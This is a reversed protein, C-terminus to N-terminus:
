AHPQALHEGEVDIRPILRGLRRPLKWARDGLLAMAAPVLTMRVVFADAIVGFALSLGISKIVPDPDLLFAAFVGTMIVAAATVVRGSHGYGTIVAERANGSRTYAERMRSVLFVEYDMALGFLIGILLVPLFSVVPGPQAVGFLDALHGDQFVWVVLGMSAAISLLFGAAAKLPVLISRFVVMLLLLALGVV